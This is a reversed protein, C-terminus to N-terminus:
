KTVRQHLQLHYVYCPLFNQYIRSQELLHGEHFRTLFKRRKEMDLKLPAKAFMEKVKGLGMYEVYSCLADENSIELYHDLVQRVMKSSFNNFPLTSVIFDYRYDPKWDLVSACIVRVRKDDSFKDRLFDCCEPDLEVLDLHDDPRMKALIKESINGPGAGADLINWPRTGTRTRMEKIMEEIAVGMIPVFAGVNAPDKMFHKFFFKYM